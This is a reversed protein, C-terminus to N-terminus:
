LKLKTSDSEGFQVIKLLISVVIRSGGAIIWNTTRRVFSPIETEKLETDIYEIVVLIVNQTSGHPFLRIKIIIHM